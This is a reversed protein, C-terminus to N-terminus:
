RGRVAMSVLADRVEADEPSAAAIPELLQRAEAARAPDAALLIGLGRRAAVLEPELALAQRYSAEAEILAGSRREAEALNVWAHATPQIRLSRRLVEQARAFDGVNL